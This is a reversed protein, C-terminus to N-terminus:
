QTPEPLQLLERLQDFVEPPFPPACTGSEVCVTTKSPFPKLLEVISLAKLEPLVM